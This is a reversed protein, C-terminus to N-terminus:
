SVHLLIGDLLTLSFMIVILQFLNLFYTTKVFLKLSKIKKLQIKIQTSKRWQKKHTCIDFGIRQLIPFDYGGGDSTM